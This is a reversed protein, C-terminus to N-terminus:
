RHRRRYPHHHHHTAKEEAQGKNKVGQHSSKTQNQTNNKYSSYAYYGASFLGVTLLYPAATKLSEVCAEVMEEKHQRAAELAAESANVAVKYTEDVLKKLCDESAGFIPNAQSIDRKLFIDRVTFFRNDPLSYITKFFMDEYENQRDAVYIANCTHNAIADIFPKLDVPVTFCSSENDTPTEVGYHFLYNMGNLQNVVTFYKTDRCKNAAAIGINIAFSTLLALNKPINNFSFNSLRISYGNNFGVGDNYLTFYSSNKEAQQLQAAFEQTEKRELM